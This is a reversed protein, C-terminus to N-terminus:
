INMMIKLNKLLKTWLSIYKDRIEMGDSLWNGFIGDSHVNVLCYLNENIIMDVVMKIKEMLEPNVIYSDNIFNLWTIPFRITKFGNKKISKIMKKTPIPNGKSTILEDIDIIKEKEENDIYCDFSNALNYGIGM